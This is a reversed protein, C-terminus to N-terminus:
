CPYLGALAVPVPSMVAIAALCLLMILYGTHALRLFYMPVSYYLHGFRFSINRFCRMKIICHMTAMLIPTGSRLDRHMYSTLNRSCGGEDV